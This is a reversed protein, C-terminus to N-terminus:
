ELSEQHELVKKGIVTRWNAKIVRVRSCKSTVASVNVLIHGPSKSIICVCLLMDFGLM